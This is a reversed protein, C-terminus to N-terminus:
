IHPSTTFSSMLLERAAPIEGQMIKAAGLASLASGMTKQNQANRFVAMASQLMTEGEPIRGLFLLARGACLQASAVCMADGIEQFIALAREASALAPKFQGFVSDIKSAALELQAALLRPTQASVADLASRVYRRGEGLALEQWVRVVALRQGLVTDGGSALAWGVAARLNDMEPEAKLIWERDAMGDWSEDLQEAFAVYASAHRHVISDYEACEKLKERAYHRTSELLRYRGDENPQEHSRELNVLSKDVLSTLLDLLDFEELNEEQCVAIALELSFSGAFISFYRLLKRERENLLDYSWDILARMTQQRPLATRDGGTLLRFREDLKQALQRPALVKVRAAALEIALPIGDLRRCIEAVAPANDDSLVFHANAARARTDFLTVAGFSLAHEASLGKVRDPVALSPLRHLVEGSIALGERSTALISVKPCGRLIADAAQSVEHIVHECNDVILLLHKARLHAVLQDSISQSPSEQLAFVSAIVNPVLAGDSLPALDIFWVGDEFDDVLEAGAQLACRTKGVGGAGSLTLLRSARVLRKIEAIDQDRGVLSALQLPLNNKLVSLSRLKPFEAAIDPHILQFVREPATLDKLRHEGLDRLSVDPLSRSVMDAAIGSLLVQNGYGIALLRAVRNLTPGFYDGDREDSTGAHLAMRVRLGEVSSFDEAALARQVDLATNVGDEVSGFAACFADGITKFVHGQHAAIATRLLTDHRRVAQQMAVADRDWRVTSGEIDTFLFTVLGSPPAHSGVPGISRSPSAGISEMSYQMKQVAPMCDPLAQFGHAPPILYRPSSAPSRFSRFYKRFRNPTWPLSTIVAAHTILPRVVANPNVAHLPPPVM